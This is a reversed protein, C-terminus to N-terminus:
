DTLRYWTLVGLKVVVMTVGVALLDSSWLHDVYYRYAFLGLALCGAAMGGVSTSRLRHQLFREDIVVGLGPIKM